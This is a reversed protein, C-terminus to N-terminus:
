PQRVTELEKSQPSAGSAPLEFARPATQDLTADRVGLAQLRQDWQERTYTKAKQRPIESAKAQSDAISKPLAGCAPLEFARPATHDLTADRVGLESLRKLWQERTYKAAKKGLIESAKSQPDVISKPLAGSAPLEFGSPAPQDLTADRGGLDLLKQRLQEPTYKRGNSGPIGAGSSGPQTTSQPLVCDPLTAKTDANSEQTRPNM